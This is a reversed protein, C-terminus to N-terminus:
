CPAGLWSRQMEEFEGWNQELQDWLLGSSRLDRHEPFARRVTLLNREVRDRVSEKLAM